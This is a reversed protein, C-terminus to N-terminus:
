FPVGDFKGDSYRLRRVFSGYKLCGGIHSLRVYTYSYNKRTALLSITLLSSDNQSLACKQLIERNLRDELTLEMM